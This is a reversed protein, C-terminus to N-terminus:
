GPSFVLFPNTEKRLFGLGSDASGFGVSVGHDSSGLATLWRVSEVKSAKM